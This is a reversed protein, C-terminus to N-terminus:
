LPMRGMVGLPILTGQDLWVYQLSMSHQPVDAHNKCTDIMSRYWVQLIMYLVYRAITGINHKKSVNYLILFCEPSADKHHMADSGCDQM